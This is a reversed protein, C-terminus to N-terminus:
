SFKPLKVIFEAGDKYESNVYVSGRHREVIEKTIAL